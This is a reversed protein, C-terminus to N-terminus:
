VLTWCLYTGNRILPDDDMCSATAFVGGCTWQSGSGQIQPRHKHPSHHWLELQKRIITVARQGAPLAREDVDGGDPV